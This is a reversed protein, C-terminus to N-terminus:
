SSRSQEQVCLFTGFHECYSLVTIPLWWVCGGLMNPVCALPM